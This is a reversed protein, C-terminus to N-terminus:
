PTQRRRYEGDFVTIWTRGGDTSQEWHQRVGGEAARLPTWTIRQAVDSGDPSRTSGELVMAGDRLGGDLQLLLGGNDVWTQHWRSESTDYINFSEGEFGTSGEYREHLVCGRMTRSIVSKGAERGDPTFVTWEGLWFDFARHEPTACPDAPTQAASREAGSLVLIMSLAVGAVPSTRM